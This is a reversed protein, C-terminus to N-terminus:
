CTHDDLRVNKSDHRAGLAWCDQALIAAALGGLAWLAVRPGKHTRGALTHAHLELHVALPRDPASAYAPASM